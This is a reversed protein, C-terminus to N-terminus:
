ELTRKFVNRKTGDRDLLTGILTVKVLDNSTTINEDEDVADDIDAFKRMIKSVIGILTQGLKSARIAILHNVQLKSLQTNDNVMIVVTSTDVGQVKGFSNMEEFNFIGM